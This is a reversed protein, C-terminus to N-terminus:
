TYLPPLTKKQKDSGEPVASLASISKWLAKGSWPRLISSFLAQNLQVIEQSLTAIELHEEMIRRSSQDRQEGAKHLSSSFYRTCAEDHQSTLFHQFDNLNRLAKEPWRAQAWTLLITRCKSPNNQFCARKLLKLLKDPETQVEHDHPEHRPKGIGYFSFWHTWPFRNSPQQRPNARCRLWCILATTVWGFAFFVTLIPTYMEEPMFRSAWTDQESPKRTVVDSSGETEKKQDPSHETQGTINLPRDRTAPEQTSSSARHQPSAPTVVLTREPLYAIEKIQADINWWPIEIAPLTLTGTRSPIIMVKEVRMGIIGDRNRQDTLVPQDPYRNLFPTQKKTAHESQIFTTNGVEEPVVIYPLQAATLGNAWLTLTRTIAEFAQFQPPNKSWKEEVQLHRAPLWLKEQFSTPIPEVKLVVAPSHRQVIIEEPHSSGSVSARESHRNQAVRAELHVPMITLNGSRQPFIAYRREVVLYRIGHRKTEFNQDEGLKEIVADAASTKLDTLSAGVIEISRFFQITYILQSQVYIKKPLSSVDLFLAESPISHQPQQKVQAEHQAEVSRYPMTCVFLFLFVTFVMRITGMKHQSVM